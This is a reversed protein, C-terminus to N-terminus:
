MVQGDNYLSSTKPKPNLFIVYLQHGLWAKLYLAIYNISDREVKFNIKYGQVKCPKNGQM